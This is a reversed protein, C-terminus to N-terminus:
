ILRTKKFNIPVSKLTQDTISMPYIVRMKDFLSSKELENGLNIAAKILLMREEKQKKILEFANSKDIDEIYNKVFNKVQQTM